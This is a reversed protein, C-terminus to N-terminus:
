RRHFLDPHRTKGTSEDGLPNQAHTHICMINIFTFEHETRVVCVSLIYVGAESTEVSENDTINRKILYLSAYTSPLSSFYSDTLSAM